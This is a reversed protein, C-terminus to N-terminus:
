PREELAMWRALAAELEPGIAEIRALVERIHDPPAKYFEASAAEHQLRTQESELAEIRAPLSELERVEHYSL